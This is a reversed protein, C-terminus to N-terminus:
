KLKSQPVAYKILLTGLRNNFGMIPSTMMIVKGNTDVKIDNSSIDVGKAIVSFPQKEDKKNTSAVVLGKDNAIIIQQVNAEKVMDSLYLNVQNFNGQLMETRLAWVFPKALLRLHESHSQMLQQNAKSILAAKETDSKAQLKNLEISKWGWIAAVLALAIVVIILIPKKNKSTPVLHSESNPKYTEM